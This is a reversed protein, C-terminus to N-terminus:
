IRTIEKSELKGVLEAFQTDNVFFRRPFIYHVHDVPYILLVEGNAAWKHLEVIKLRVEGENSKSYLFEDDWWINHTRGLAPMQRFSNRAGRPIVIYLRILALVSSILIYAAAIYIFHEVFNKPNENRIAAFILPIAASIGMIIFITRPLKKRLIRFSGFRTASIMDQLSMTITIPTM